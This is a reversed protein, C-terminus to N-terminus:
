KILRSLAKFDDSGARGLADFLATETATVVAGARACLELGIRRNEDSRSCVADYPVHVRDGAELLGCATQYVCIHTEMGGVIWQDRGAERQAEFIPAFEPARTCAFDLKELRALSLGPAALAAELPAVTAGLGRTYQQSVVVPFKLRRAAEILVGLNHVCRERAEPEMAAALREQVDVVLLVARAPDITQEHM